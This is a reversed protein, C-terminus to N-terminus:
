KKWEVIKLAEFERVWINRYRVPNNHGQLRVKIREKSGGPNVAHHILLGNHFVTLQAPSTVTGQAVKPSIFVIDYSQWEGPKRSANVLPPFKSYIAGAQGDPYTDNQFSDLVQIEGQGVLIVGSNGRGQGDGKVESPTAWEIHIQCDGFERKSILNGRPPRIEMFGNELKWSVDQKTETNNRNRVFDWKDLSTGDFLILADSPPHGPKDQWSPTPPQVVPPRPRDMSRKPWQQNQEAAWAACYFNIVFCGM